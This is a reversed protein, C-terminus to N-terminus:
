ESIATSGTESAQEDEIVVTNWETLEKRLNQAEQELQKLKNTDYDTAIGAAIAALPRIRERDIEDFRAMIRTIEAGNMLRTLDAKKDSDTREVVKGRILKYNYVGKDDTLGKPLYHGQAHHFRDGTGQDVKTWGDVNSLFASSNVATIIGDANTKAYVKYTENTYDM